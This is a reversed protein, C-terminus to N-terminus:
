AVFLFNLPALSGLKCDFSRTPFEHMENRIERQCDCDTTLMGCVEHDYRPRPAGGDRVKCHLATRLLSSGCCRRCHRCRQGMQQLRTMSSWLPAACFMTSATKGRAVNSGGCQACSCVPSPRLGKTPSRSQLRAWSLLRCDSLKKADLPLIGTVALFQDVCCTFHRYAGHSLDM